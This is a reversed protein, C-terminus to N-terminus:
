GAAAIRESLREAIMITALHPFGATPEPIISADIVSLREAGHVSGSADVVAGDEPSRGMSCTGVVHPISYREARIASRLAKPEDSGLPEPEDCWRRLEPRSALERARLHAEALRDVDSAARLGPLDIRPPDHPDASRLRVSGRSAPKMLVADISFAPPDGQPDATWLMLDLPDEAAAASSRFTAISHLAPGERGAGRYGLELEVAPHDALNAGVGPLDLRVAIDLSRLEDAPGIGSRLLIAPSGYTGAALVVRDARITSGDSLRVGTARKGELVIDAVPSEPRITLNAPTRDLPLYADATTVRGGDRTSMPMRGVGEAGPRNHDDVFPLGIAVMSDIVAAHAESPLLGLYRDVPIPGDDGHWPEDGFDRDAELRIFTPLVDEFGWGPNGLAEWRDFDAPSGRVAFRTHWSTGGLLKGRRLPQSVDREDPESAYGWDSTQALNWGDRLPEPVERRLDPGAEVLVVSGGTSAALRAAVVCGAAGGGVVVVDVPDAAVAGETGTRITRISM